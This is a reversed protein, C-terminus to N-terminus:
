SGGPVMSTCAGCSVGLPFPAHPIDVGLIFVSPDRIDYASATLVDVLFSLMGNAVLELGLM